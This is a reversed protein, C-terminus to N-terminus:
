VSELLDQNFGFVEGVDAGFDTGGLGWIGDNFVPVAVPEAEAADVQLDVPGEAECERFQLGFGECLEGRDAFVEPLRADIGVARRDDGSRDGVDVAAEAQDFWVLSLRGACFRRDEADMEFAGAEVGAFAPGMGGLMELGQCDGLHLRDEAVVAVHNGVDGEGGFEIRAAFHNSEQVIAANADAEAMGLGGGGFGVLGEALPGAEDGVGEIGHGGQM